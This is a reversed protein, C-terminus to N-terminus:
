SKQVAQPVQTKSYDVKVTLRCQVCRLSKSTLRAVLFERIKTKRVPHNLPRQISRYGSTWENVKLFEEFL